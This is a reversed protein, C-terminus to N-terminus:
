SKEVTRKKRRRRVEAGALGALGIGLLAITAPEPVAAESFNSDESQFIGWYPEDPTTSGWSLALTNINGIDFSYSTPLTFTVDNGNGPTGIISLDLNFRFQLADEVGAHDNFMRIEDVTRNAIPSASVTGTNDNSALSPGLIWQTDSPDNSTEEIWLTQPSSPTSGALSGTLNFTLTDTGINLLTM